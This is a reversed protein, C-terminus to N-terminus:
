ASHRMKNITTSFTIISLTTISFTTIGLTAAGQCSIQEENMKRRLGIGCFCKPRLLSSRKERAPM